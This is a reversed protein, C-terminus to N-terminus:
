VSNYQLWIMWENMMGGIILYVTYRLGITLGNDPWSDYKKSSLPIIYFKSRVMSKMTYVGWGRGEKEVEKKAFPRVIVIPSVLIYPNAVGNPHEWQM